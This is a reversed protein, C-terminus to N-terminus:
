SWEKCTIKPSTGSRYRNWNIKNKDLGNMKNMNEPPLLDIQVNVEFHSHNEEKELSRWFDCIMFNIERFQKSSGLCVDKWQIQIRIGSYQTIEICVCVSDGNKEFIEHFWDEFIIFIRKM